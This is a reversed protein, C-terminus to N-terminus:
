YLYVLVYLVPWVGVVFYWFLRAAAFSEPPLAAHGGRARAAIWLMLVLGAAAHVAHTGVIVYFIAGYLSSRMTLGFGVLRVWELGQALVFVAGLGVAAHLWRRSARLLFPSRYARASAALAAGSGLLVLTNVATAALPLRPQGLPPWLVEGARIVLHAAILASFFMVESAIFIAVGLVPSPVARGPLPPAAMDM